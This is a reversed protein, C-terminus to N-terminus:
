LLIRPSLGHSLAHGAPVGYFGYHRFGRERLHDLAMQAVCRNDIGFMSDRFHPLRGSLDIMPLRAALLIKATRPSEVRALIGDGRWKRLWAPLPDHQGHPTFYISWPGHQRVYEAVGRILGRAYGRSTEIWVAVRPVKINSPMAIFNLLPLRPLREKLVVKLRDGRSSGPSANEPYKAATVCRTTEAVESVRLLGLM